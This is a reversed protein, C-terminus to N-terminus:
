VIKESIHIKNILLVCIKLINNCYCSVFGEICAAVEKNFHKRAWEMAELKTFAEISSSQEMSLAHRPNRRHKEDSLQLSVAWLVRIRLLCSCGLLSEVSSGPSFVFYNLYCILERKFYGTPKSQSSDTVVYYAQQMVGGTCISFRAQQLTMAKHFRSSTEYQKQQSRLKAHNVLNVWDWTVWMIHVVYNVCMIAIIRFSVAFSQRSSQRSCCTQAM